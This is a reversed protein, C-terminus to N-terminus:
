QFVSGRAKGSLKCSVVSLQCSVVSFQCSVVAEGRFGLGGALTCDRAVGSLGVFHRGVRGWGWGEVWSEDGGGEFDGAVADDAVNADHASDDDARAVQEAGDAGAEM